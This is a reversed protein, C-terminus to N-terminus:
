RYYIYCSANTGTLVSYCGTAFNIPTPFVETISFVGASQDNGVKLLVTGSASDPDDYLTLTADQTADYLCFGGLQGASAKVASSGVTQAGKSIFGQLQILQPM